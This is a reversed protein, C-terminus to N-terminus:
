DFTEGQLIRSASWTSTRIAAITTPCLNYNSGPYSHRDIGLIVNHSFTSDECSNDKCMFRAITSSGETRGAGKIGARGRGLINNRFVLPMDDVTGGEITLASATVPNQYTNHDVVLGSIYSSISITPETGSGYAQNDIDFFLNNEIKWNRIIGGDTSGKWAAPASRIVNGRILINETRAYYCAPDERSCKPPQSEAKLNIPTQQSEVWMKDLVNHMFLM